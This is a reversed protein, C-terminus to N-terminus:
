LVANEGVKDILKKKIDEDLENDFYVANKNMYNGDDFTVAEIMKDKTFYVADKFNYDIGPGSYGNYNYFERIDNIVDYIDGLGLWRRGFEIPNNCMLNELFEGGRSYKATSDDSSYMDPHEELSFEKNQDNPDEIVIRGIQTNPAINNELIISPYLSSYDFDVSNDCLMTPRGNVHVMINPDNHLPDGVMAGPFKTTPKENWLNKNNGIIYGYNYFEKAFRNALYVSQRHCKAYNTNNVTCKMFIYELDNTVKEICKQVIVDMVNYFSFTKFDLYPLEGIDNTIHSYDLKRVNAVVEGIADLKFSQYRGRGKRRSAFEIMQDIFIFYNSSSVYDGREEYNNKNREDIYYKLYHQQIRSDCIINLPDEGLVEIRAIIYNLDFAMNWFLIFDPLTSHVVDFMKKILTLEDDFFVLKYDLKDVGYKVAKKPGGVADIVFQKLEGIVDYRSFSQKYQEVLPNNPDNLLFQYVTNNAEDLFAFANIPVEGPEPFESNSYKIDTEIDMFGKSLKFTNNTYYNSFLFRYYNEINTDSFFVRTDAHMKRNESYAQIDVNYRYEEYRGTVQAIAPLVNSYRCIVPIVDEKPIFFLNHDPIKRKRQNLVWFTYFPAYLTHHIKEGTKNDRFLINIYDPSFNGDDDSKIKGIYSANLLTIDSGKPYGDITLKYEGYGAVYNQRGEANIYLGSPLMEQKYKDSM